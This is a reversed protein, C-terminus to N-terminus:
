ASLKTGKKEDMQRYYSRIKSNPTVSRRYLSISVGVQFRKDLFLIAYDHQKVDNTNASGFPDFFILVLTSVGIISIANETDLGLNSKDNWSILYRKMISMTM